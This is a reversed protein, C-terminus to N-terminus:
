QIKTNKGKAKAKAKEKKKIRVNLYNQLLIKNKKKLWRQGGRLKL